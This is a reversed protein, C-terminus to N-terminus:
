RAASGAAGRTRANQGPNQTRTLTKESNISTLARSTATCESHTTGGERTQLGSVVSPRAYQRAATNRM